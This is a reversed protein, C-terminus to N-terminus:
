MSGTTFIILLGVKVNRPVHLNWVTPLPLILLVIDATVNPLSALRYLANINICHGNITKDWLYSFPTCQFGSVIALSSFTGILAAGTIYCTIRYSRQPFIRLFLCLIALRPLVCSFYYLIVYAIEAKVNAVLLGPDLEKLAASHRGFGFKEVFVVIEIM